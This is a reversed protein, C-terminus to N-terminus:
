LPKRNVLINFTLRLLFGVIDFIIKPPYFVKRITQLFCVNASEKVGSYNPFTEDTGVLIVTFTIACDNHEYRKRVSM